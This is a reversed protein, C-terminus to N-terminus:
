GGWYIFYPKIKDRIDDIVEIIENEVLNKAYEICEIIDKHSNSKWLLTMELSNFKVFRKINFIIMNIFNVFFRLSFRDLNKNVKDSIIKPVTRIPLNAVGSLIDKIVNIDPMIVKIIKEIAPYIISLPSSFHIFNSNKKNKQTDNCNCNGGQYKMSIPFFFMRFFNLLQKPDLRLKECMQELSKFKDM